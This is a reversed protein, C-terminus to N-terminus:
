LKDPRFVKVKRLFVMSILQACGIFLLFYNLHTENRFFTLIGMLIVTSIFRGSNLMIEKNIIYEVRLDEEHRVSIINFSASALPVLFFPVSASDLIMFFLLSPYSINIVLGWVAAFMLIAGLLMSILRLKPKILKQEAIYAASSILSAFLSFKGVALESGTSRYVLVIILFGIIVDRFGWVAISRRLNKWDECNNKFIKDHNLRTGYNDARLMLSVLILIVFLILSSSFVITYGASVTNANIIFASTIPALAGFIGSIGGNFGNFTDRNETSTFDFSLVHYSLWYFGAAIGFLAGVPIVYEAVNDKLLLIFGFFTIFFIIGFRLAWIGNKKKSLRGALIFAPPVLAYHMLNYQAIVMFNNSKKWLFINVFVNSLGMALTFLASIVLLIKAKGSM